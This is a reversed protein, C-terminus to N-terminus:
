GSKIGTWNVTIEIADDNPFRVTAQTVVADVTDTIKPSKYQINKGEMDNAFAVWDMERDDADIICKFNGSCDVVGKVVGVPQGESRLTAKTKANNNVTYEGEVVQLLDGGISIQGRPFRLLESNAM